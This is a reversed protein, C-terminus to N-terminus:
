NIAQVAIPPQRCDTTQVVNTEFTANIRSIGKAVYVLLTSILIRADYSVTSESGEVILKAGQFRPSNTM